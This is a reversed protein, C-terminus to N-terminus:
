GDLGRGFGLFLFWIRGEDLEGDGTMREEMNEEGEGM